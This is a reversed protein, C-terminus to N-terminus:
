IKISETRGSFYSIPDKMDLFVRELEERNVSGPDNDSRIEAVWTTFYNMARLASRKSEGITNFDYLIVVGKINSFNQKLKGLQEDSFKDGFTFICRTQEGLKHLQLKTDVGVKDFLGEVVILWETNSTIDNYGGILENFDNTSNEYRLVLKELGQKANELNVKHWEKERKSRALWGKLVEGEFLQFIIYDKKVPSIGPRFLNYHEPLFGRENLYNDHDIEQFFMPLICSSVKKNEEKKEGIAQLKETIPASIEGSWLDLRDMKKLFKYLSSSYDCYFCHVAGPSRGLNVGFKGKKGCAPNPCSLRDSGMWGKAGFPRLSLEKIILETKM